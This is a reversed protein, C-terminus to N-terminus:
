LRIDLRGSSAVLRHPNSDAAIVLGNGSLSPGDTRNGGTKAQQSWSENQQPTQNQFSLNQGSLGNRELAQVLEFHMQRLQRMAEPNEATITVHQLGQADFKFDISVRGLEPPDLQVVVRDDQADTTARAVIDPLQTTTAVMVSHTPALQPSNTPQVPAPASAVGPLASTTAMSTMTSPTQSTSALSDLVKAGDPQMQALDSAPQEIDTLLTEAPAQRDLLPAPSPAEVRSEPIAQETESPPATLPLPTAGSPEAGSTSVGAQAAAIEGATKAPQRAVPTQQAALPAALLTMASQQESQVAPDADGSIIEDPAASTEALNGTNAEAVPLLAPVPAAVDGAPPPMETEPVGALGTQVEASPVVVAEPLAPEPVAGASVGETTVPAETLATIPLAATPVDAAVISADPLAAAPSLTLLSQSMLESDGLFFSHGAETGSHTESPPNQHPGASLSRAFDKGRGAESGARNAVDQMPGALANWFDVDVSFTM